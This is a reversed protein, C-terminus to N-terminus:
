KKTQLIYICVCVCVCVCLCSAIWKLMETDTTKHSLHGGGGEREREYASLSVSVFMCVHACTYILMCMM